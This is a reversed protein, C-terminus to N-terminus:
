IRSIFHAGVMDNLPNQPKIGPARLLLQAIYQLVKFATVPIQEINEFRSSGFHFTRERRM